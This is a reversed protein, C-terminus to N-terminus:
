LTLVPLAFPTAHQFKKKATQIGPPTAKGSQARELAAKLEGVSVIIAGNTRTWM